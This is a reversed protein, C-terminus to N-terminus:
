FLVRCTGKITDVHGLFRTHLVNHFIRRFIFHVWLGHTHVLRHNRPPLFSPFKSFVNRHSVNSALSKRNLSSSFTTVLFPTTPSHCPFTQARTKSRVNRTNERSGRITESLGNICCVVTSKKFYNKERQTSQSVSYGDKREGEGLDM